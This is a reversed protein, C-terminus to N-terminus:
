VARPRLTMMLQQNDQRPRSQRHRRHREAAAALNRQTSAIPTTVNPIANVDYLNAGSLVRESLLADFQGPIQLNEFGARLAQDVQKDGIGRDIGQNILADGAGYVASMATDHLLGKGLTKADALTPWALNSEHYSAPVSAASRIADGTFSKMAGNSMSKFVDPISSPLVKFIAGEAFNVTLDTAINVAQSRVTANGDYAISGGVGSILRGVIGSGFNKAIEGFVEVPDSLSAAAVGVGSGVLAATGAGLAKPLGSVGAVNLWHSALGWSAYGWSAANFIIAPGRLAEKAAQKMGEKALYKLGYGAAGKVIGRLMGVPMAKAIEQGTVRTKALGQSDVFGIPNGGVMQYLNLGDSVGAPDASLWRQRWPMYYRFGYYYLGTTDREQGSYRLTRYGAEVKDRGAWWATGGYPYFSEQSILQADVDLELSSSALHDTLLYRYQEDAVHAPRGKEWHLIQVTCRGAQVSIVHVIEEPATRIEVGSLYRTEHTRTRRSSYATRIKRLRQGAGDYVYRESDNPEGERLVQDVQCLQDRGNWLLNQGQQLLKLNGNADYGANIEGEGPPEGNASYPLSRNSAAAVATRESRQGSDAVHQLTLLNGGSDYAFTQRYNELQSSDPPSIFEPLLAGGPTNVCQRGSAEILQYLSDYRYTNLPAVRQNRFYRIPQASDSISLLNGVPDYAYTLNQIASENTVQTILTSLRGNEADFTARTVVGNGATQQEIQGEASYRINGVLTSFGAADHLKLCTESLEGARTQRLLQENGLADVHRIQEGAANNDTRTLAREPELLNDRGIEDEPWDPADLAQLFRRSQELASGSLSCEHLFVTGGRDDHRVIQGCLNHQASEPSGDAYDFCESRQLAEGAEQEFLFAPRLLADHVVRRHSLKQDWSELPQGSAGTLSLRWGADVNVSLLSAGSLSTLTTQNAPASASKFLSFLRPDRSHSTRTHRDLITQTIRAQPADLASQRWYVVARIPAGCPDIVALAPTGRDM